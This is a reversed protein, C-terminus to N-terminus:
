SKKLLLNVGVLVFAIATPLAMAANHSWTYLAPLDAIYGAFNVAGILLVGVASIASCDAIIEQNTM